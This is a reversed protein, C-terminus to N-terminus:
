RFYMFLQCKIMGNYLKRRKDAKKGYFKEFDEDPSIINAPTRFVKGMAKYLDEADKIELLREGYPPNCIVTSNEPQRFSRVDGQKVTIRDAVGARKANELTLEVAENDIDYGIAHFDSDKRIESRAKDRETKWIEMSMCEWAEALFRRRLGPAINMAKLASEILFTGSGCCPDCVLTDARVRSLDVIGGALTEKIPAIVSKKRYGRKHLGEGTTDLFIVAKDNMISFQIQFVAGTEEFWNIKYVSKLREVIAKKVISQCTPVSKLKSNLSYGKVLFKDQKGIFNEFPISKVGQFLDEFTYAQFDALEIQVREATAFCINARALTNFDGNFTVRGNQAQINEAGIKKAEFVLVSELGFHCPCSFKLSATELEM